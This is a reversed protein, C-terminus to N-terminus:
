QTSQNVSVESKCYKITIYRIGDLRVIREYLQLTDINIRWYDILTDRNLLIWRQTDAIQEATMLASDGEVVAPTDGVSFVVGRGNLFIRVRPQPELYNVALWVKYVLGTWEPLLYDMYLTGDKFYLEEDTTPKNTPNKNAM